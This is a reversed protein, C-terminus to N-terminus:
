EAGWIAETMQITRVNAQVDHVRVFRCGSMVAAVTTVLTGELREDVPLHLTNGIVSKRSCGLLVPYGLSCFEELHKLVSLNMENTKGFGVGPDIIIKDQAIGVNRANQICELTERIMDEVFNEYDPMTKNHMLCCACGSAAVVEAMCHDYRLGWIDNVLNAGSQIAAKAVASKYTDVSIPIDFRSHVAEIVPVVRQIEESDTIMTYGPRSSEGGIDIVAAGEKIMQETHYLANDIDNWKGGDSFSDPTVNLIGMVYTHGKEFQRNGINM